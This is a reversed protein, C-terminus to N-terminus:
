RLTDSGSPVSSALRRIGRSPPEAKGLLAKTTPGAAHDGTAPLAAADDRPVWMLYPWLWFLPLVSAVIFMARWGLWAVLAATLPFAICLAVFSEAFPTAVTAVGWLRDLPAGSRPGTSRGRAM